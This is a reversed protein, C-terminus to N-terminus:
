RVRGYRDALKAARLDAASPDTLAEPAVQEDDIQDERDHKSDARAMAFPAALALIAFLYWQIVYAFHQPELAGGAPNSLDPGPLTRLGQTGPQHSELEAYGNYVPGGLRAAQEGPNISEVQQDNLEAAADHRSESAQVRATVTVTGAPPAAPTPIRGSATDALFGRVVLLTAGSTRLPTVVLFGVADGLTRSRVLSGGTRDYTGTVRVSRFEVQNSSPAKGRGVLPLVDAIQATPAHANTRLADNAHVKQQFRAIQWTGAVVCVIAVVVMLAGLAAYRPQRLTRLV